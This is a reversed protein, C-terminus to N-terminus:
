SLANSIIEPSLNEDGGYFCQYGRNLCAEYIERHDVRFYLVKSKQWFMDCVCDFGNLEPMDNLIIKVNELPKEKDQFLMEKEACNKAFSKEKIDKAKYSYFLWIDHYKTGTLNKSTDLDFVPVPKQILSQDDEEYPNCELDNLIIKCFLGLIPNDLAGVIASRDLLSNKRECSTEPLLTCAHCASYNLGEMGQAMSEICVPDSSCWSAEELMNLFISAFESTGAQRVLGGLSGDTDSASTYILIGCMNKSGDNNFTSYIRERLSANAYGCELSLQRILLHSITHLLVYRPSFNDCKLTSAKLRNKMLSYHEVNKLEWKRIVNEKFQLFIGEGKLAIAPLWDVEPEETLPTYGNAQNYGYFKDEPKAKDPDYDEGPPNPNIRRFGRLAMIERLSHVKVLKELYPKLIDPVKSASIRFNNDGIANYNGICLMRYEDEYVSQKNYKNSKGEYKKEIYELLEDLTCVNKEIFKGFMLEIFIEFKDRPQNEYANLISIWQKDILEAINSSWPPITLASETVPFYLNSGGRQTGWLKAKCRVPDKQKIWPRNGQCRYGNLAGKSMSGEMSRMAKCKNCKIIIGDLGGSTNTFEINLDSNYNYLSCGKSESYKEIIHGKDDTHVWWAYPFDELHGNICASVFRSPVIKKECKSCIYKSDNSFKDFQRLAGCQPCFHMLPFRYAPIDYPKKEEKDETFPPELFYNVGLLRELTADNLRYCNGTYWREPTAIIATCDPMNVISGMGFSMILQARRMDGLVKYTSHMSSKGNKGVFSM